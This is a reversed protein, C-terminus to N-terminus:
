QGDGLLYALLDYGYEKVQDLLANFFEGSYVDDYRNFMLIFGRTRQIYGAKTQAPTQNEARHPSIAAYALGV